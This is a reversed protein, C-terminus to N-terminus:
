HGSGADIGVGTGKARDPEGCGGSRSGSLIVSVIGGSLNCGVYKQEVMSKEDRIEGEDKHNQAKTGSMFGM